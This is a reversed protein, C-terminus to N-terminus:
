DVLAVGPLNFHVVQGRHDTALNTFLETRAGPFRKHLWVHDIDYLPLWSQWTGRWGGHSLKAALNYGGAVKTFADFGSSRSLANFDGAVMDIPQGQNNSIALTKVIDRLMPTRSRPLLAHSLVLLKNSMNRDGDIALLRLPQGRVTVVVIMAQGRRIPVFREFQLPWSSCVAVTELRPSKYILTWDPGMQNVLMDLLGKPPPESIVIIDPHRQYIDQRISKWADKGLGGWRVNWHLLSIQTDPNSPVQFGELGIMSLSAGIVISVGILTLVFRFKPLSHGVYLLDLLIAWLGLPLLPIYMLLGWVITRDRVIQGTIGLLIFLVTTISLLTGLLRFLQRTKTFLNDDTTMILFKNLILPLITCTITYRNQLVSNIGGSVSYIEYEL